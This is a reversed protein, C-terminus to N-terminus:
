EPDCQVIDGFTACSHDWSSTDLWCICTAGNALCCDNGNCIGAEAGEQCYTEIIESQVFAQSGLFFLLSVVFAIRAFKMM